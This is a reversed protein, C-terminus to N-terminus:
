EERRQMVIFLNKKGGALRPPIRRSEVRYGQPLGQKFDEEVAARHMGPVMLARLFAPNRDLFFEPEVYKDHGASRRGPDKVERNAVELDVLGCADYITLDSAYGVAGIAASVYADGPNSVEKLARGLITWESLNRKMQRWQDLETKVTPSNWRFHLLKRISAPVPAMGFAPLVQILILIIAAVTMVHGAQSEKLIYRGLLYATMLAFYPAAPAMFRLPTAFCILYSLTYYLGRQLTILGGASKAYFTNPMPYGFYLCRAAFYPVFFALVAATYLGAKKLLLRKPMGPRVVPLILLLCFAWILGEPRTLAMLGAAAGATLPEPGCHRALLYRFALFFLVSFLMTELGGSSCAAFAPSLATCLLGIFLAGPSAGLDYKLCKFVLFLLVVGLGASIWNALGVMDLGSAHLGALIATWLFNSFGEVPIAEL